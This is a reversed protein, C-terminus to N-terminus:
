KPFATLPVRSLHVSNMGVGKPLTPDLVSPCTDAVITSRESFSNESFDDVAHLLNSPFVIINGENPKITRTDKLGKHTCFFFSSYKNPSNKFSLGGSGSPYNLYYVITVCSMWHDHFNRKKIEHYKETPTFCWSRLYEWSSGKTFETQLVDNYYYNLCSTFISRLSSMSESPRKIFQVEDHIGTLYCEPDKKPDPCPVKNIEKEELLANKYKEHLPNKFVCVPFGFVDVTNLLKLTDM